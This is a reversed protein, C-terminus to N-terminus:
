NPVNICHFLLKDYFLLFDWGRCCCPHVQLAGCGALYALPLSIPPSINYIYIYVPLYLGCFWTILLWSSISFWIYCIDFSSPPTHPTPCTVWNQGRRLLPHKRPCKSFYKEEQYSYASYSSAGVGNRKQRQIIDNSSIINPM